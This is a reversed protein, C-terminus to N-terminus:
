NVEPKSIIQKHSDIDNRIWIQFGSDILMDFVDKWPFKVDDLVTIDYGGYNESVRGTVGIKKRLIQLM